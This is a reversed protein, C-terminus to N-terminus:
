NIRTILREPRLQDIDYLLAREEGKIFSPIFFEGRTSSADGTIVYGGEVLIAELVSLSPVIYRATKNRVLGNEMVTYGRVYRPTLNTPIDTAAIFSQNYFPAEGFGGALVFRTLDIPIKIRYSRDIDDTYTTYVLKGAM